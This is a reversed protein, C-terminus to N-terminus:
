PSYGSDDTDDDDSNDTNDGNDDGDDDADEEEAEEAMVTAVAALQLHSQAMIAWRGSANLNRAANIQNEFMNGDAINVAVRVQGPPNVPPNM